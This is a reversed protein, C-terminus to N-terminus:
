QSHSSYMARSDNENFILKRERHYGDIMMFSKLHPRRKKTKKKLKKMKKNQRNVIIVNAWAEL